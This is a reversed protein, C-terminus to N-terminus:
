KILIAPKARDQTIREIKIRNAPIRGVEFVTGYGRGARPDNSIFLMSDTYQSAAKGYESEIKAFEEPAATRLRNMLTKNFEGKSRATSEIEYKKALNLIDQVYKSTAFQGSFFFDVYCRSNPPFVGSGEAGLYSGIKVGKVEYGRGNVRLDRDDGQGVLESGEVLLYLLVEGPGIQKLGTPKMVYNFRDDGRISDIASNLSNATVSSIRPLRKSLVHQEFVYRLAERNNNKFDQPYLLLNIIKRNEVRSILELEDKSFQNAM